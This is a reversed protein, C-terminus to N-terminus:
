MGLKENGSGEKESNVIVLSAGDHRLRIPDDRFVQIQRTCNDLYCYRFPDLKNILQATLEHLPVPVHKESENSLDAITEM